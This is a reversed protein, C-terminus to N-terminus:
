RTSPARGWGTSRSTALTPAPGVPWSGCRPRPELDTYIASGVDAPPRRVSRTRHPRHRGQRLAPQGRRTRLPVRRASAHQRDPRSVNNDGNRDTRGSESILLAAPGRDSGRHRYTGHLTLGDASFTVEEDVWPKPSHACGTLLGLLLVGVALVHKVATTIWATVDDLVQEREPENFVEHYLEPYVKLEVDQLRHVPRAAQQGRRVGVPRERRAGGPNARHNRPGKKEMTEGVVLLAKGIGAPIKGRYVLPDAKYDAVVQPDRSVLDADIQEIPLDPLISGVTKGVVAKLRSLRRHAAVAPGSLVM